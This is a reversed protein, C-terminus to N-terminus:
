PISQAARSASRTAKELVAVAGLPCSPAGFLDDQMDNRRRGSM